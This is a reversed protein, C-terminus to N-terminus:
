VRGLIIDEDSANELAAIRRSRIHNVVFAVLDDGSIELKDASTIVPLLRTCVGNSMPKPRTISVEGSLGSNAHFFTGNEGEFTHSM